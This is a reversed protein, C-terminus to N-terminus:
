AKNGYFVRTKCIVDHLATKEETFAAMLIGFPLIITTVVRALSRNLSLKKGDVDGIYIKMMRKGITAQSKSRVFHVSYSIAIIYSIFDFVRKTTDDAPLEEQMIKEFMESIQSLDIGVIYLMVLIFPLTVISDILSAKARVWLGAYIQNELNTLNQM